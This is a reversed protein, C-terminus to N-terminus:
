PHALHRPAGRVEEDGGVEVFFAEGSEGLKMHINLPEGNLELDVWPVDKDIISATRNDFRTTQPPRTVRRYIPLLNVASVM